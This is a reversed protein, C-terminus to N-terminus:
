TCIIMVEFGDNQNCYPNDTSSAESGLGEGECGTRPLGFFDLGPLTLNTIKNEIFAKLQIM